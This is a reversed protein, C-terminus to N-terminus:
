GENRESGGSGQTTYGGPGFFFFPWFSGGLGLPGLCWFLFLLLLWQSHTFSWMWEKQGLILQFQRAEGGVGCAQSWSQNERKKARAKSKAALRRKKEIEGGRGEWCGQQSENGNTRHACRLVASSLEPSRAM